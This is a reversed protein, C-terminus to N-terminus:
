MKAWSMKWSEMQKIEATQDKIIKESFQALEPRANKQKVMMAMQVASQHHKIMKALFMDDFAADKATELSTMEGHITMDTMKNPESKHSDRLWMKMTTIEKEQTSVINAALKTLEPRKTHTAVLNAMMVADHHHSVMNKLYLIEFKDGTVQHMKEMMASNSSDMEHMNALLGVGGSLMLCFLTLATKMYNKM